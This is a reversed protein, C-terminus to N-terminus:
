NKRSVKEIWGMGTYISVYKESVFVQVENELVRRRGWMMVGNWSRGLKVVKMISDDNGMKKRCVFDDDYM